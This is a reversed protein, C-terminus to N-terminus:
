RGAQEEEQRAEKLREMSRDMQNKNEMIAGFAFSEMLAKAIQPAKAQLDAFNTFTLNPDVAQSMAKAQQLRAHNVEGLALNGMSKASEINAIDSM